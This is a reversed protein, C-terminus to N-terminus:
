LGAAQALRRRERRARAAKLKRRREAVIAAARGELKDRPTIHGLAGHLRENNYHDVFKGVIRRAEQLSLPTGPRICEGKLAKHYAEIKGNSQPYYPSTRVHTMGCLRVFEKFERAIFQPGNDSIIRPRAEPFKERARQVITEVDAETMRERIEWHVLARSFGDLLACHYYFTGRINLYTVDVHWHAHAAPPQVFGTGKKSVRRNWVRLAGAAKLVRYVTSPSVAVVDADLMMFAVRRYGELRHEAYFTLIAAREWELLWFDRPTLVNHANPRGLRRRWQAFRERSLGIWALLAGQSLETRAVASLVFAVVDDRVRQPVWRRKM